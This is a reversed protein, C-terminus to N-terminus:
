LSFQAQKNTVGAHDLHYLCKWILSQQRNDNNEKLNLVNTLYKLPKLFQFPNSLFEHKQSLWKTGQVHFLQVKTVTNFIKSFKKQLLHPTFLFSLLIEISSNM